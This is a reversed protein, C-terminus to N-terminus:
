GVTQHNKVVDGAEGGGEGPPGFSIVNSSVKSNSSRWKAFDSTNKSRGKMESTFLSDRTDSATTASFSPRRRRSSAPSSPAPSTCPRTAKLSNQLFSCFSLCHYCSRRVNKSKHLNKQCLFHFSSIPHIQEEELSKIERTTKSKQALISSDM